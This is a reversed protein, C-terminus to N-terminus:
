SRVRKRKIVEDPEVRVIENTEANRYRVQRLLRGGSFLSADSDQLVRVERKLGEARAQGAADSDDDVVWQGLDAPLEELKGLRQEAFGPVEKLMLGVYLGIALVAIIVLLVVFV